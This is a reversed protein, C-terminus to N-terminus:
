KCGQPLGVVLLEAGTARLADANKFTDKTRGSPKTVGDSLLIVINPADPRDGREPTFYLNTMRELAAFTHTTCDVETLNMTEISQILKDPNRVDSLFAVHQTGKNFTLAAMQVGDNEISPSLFFARAIETMFTRIRDKDADSISCSTDVAFVIDIADSCDITIPPECTGTEDSCSLGRCCDGDSSCKQSRERCCTKSFGCAMVENVRKCCGLDDGCQQNVEQCPTEEPECTQPDKDWRVSTGIQECTLVLAETPKFGDDCEVTVQDGCNNNGRRPSRGGNEPAVVDTCQLRECTPVPDDVEGNPLCEVTKDTIGAANKSLTYCDNCSFSVTEGPKFRGQQNPASGSDIRGNEPAVPYECDLAICRGETCKLNGGRCCDEDEVCPGREPVCCISEKCLLSTGQLGDCCEGESRCGRQQVEKCEISSPTYTPETTVKKLEAASEKCNKDYTRCLNVRTSQSKFKRMYRKPVSGGSECRRHSWNRRATCFFYHCNSDKDATVQGYRDNTCEIKPEANTFTIYLACFIPLLLGIRTTM